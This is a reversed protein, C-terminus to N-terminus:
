ADNVAYYIVRELVAPHNVPVGPHNQQWGEVVEKAVSVELFYKTGPARLAAVSAVPSALEADSLELVVTRSEPHFAGEVPEVFLIAENPLSDLCSMADRLNM